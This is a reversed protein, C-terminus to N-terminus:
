LDNNVLLKIGYVLNYIVLIFDVIAVISFFIVGAIGIPQSNNTFFGMVGLIVIALGSLVIPVLHLVLARIANNKVDLDKSAIWVILPFLFPAFVISIYSLGNLINKENM